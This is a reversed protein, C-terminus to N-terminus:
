WSDNLDEDSIVNKASTTQIRPEAEDCKPCTKSHRGDDEEEERIQMDRKTKSRASERRKGRIALKSQTAIVNM